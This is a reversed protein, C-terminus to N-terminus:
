VYLANVVIFEERLCGLFNLVIELESLDRECVDKWRRSHKRKMNKQFPQFYFIELSNFTKASLEPSFYREVQQPEHQKILLLQFRFPKLTFEINLLEKFDFYSSITNEHLVDVYRKLSWFLSTSKTLFNKIRWVTQLAFSSPVVTTSRSGCSLKM